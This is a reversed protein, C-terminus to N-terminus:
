RPAPVASRGAMPHGSTELDTVLRGLLDSLVRAESEDWGALAGLAWEARHARTEALAATGAETLRLLSARGDQPDPRREVYGLRELVALQRSAVSVDVGVQAALASCRQDGDRELPLLMSWGFSPLEGYLQTAARASVQRGTRVLQAVGATLRDRTEPTIPM